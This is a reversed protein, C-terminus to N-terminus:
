VESLCFLPQAAGLTPPHTFLCHGRTTSKRFTKCKVLYIKYDNCNNRSYFTNDSQNKYISVDRLPLNVIFRSQPNWKPAFNNMKPM